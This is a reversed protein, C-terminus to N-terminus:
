SYADEDYAEAPDKYDKIDARVDFIYDAECEDSSAVSEMGTRPEFGDVWEGAADQLGIEGAKLKELLGMARDELYKGPGPETEKGQGTRLGYLYHYLHASGLLKAIEVILPPYAAPDGATSFTTELYSNITADAAAEASTQEATSINDTSDAGIYVKRLYESNETLPGYSM